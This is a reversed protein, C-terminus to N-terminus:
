GIGKEEIKETENEQPQALAKEKTKLHEKLEFLFNKIENRAQNKIKRRKLLFALSFSALAFILLHIPELSIQPLAIKGFLGTSPPKTEV